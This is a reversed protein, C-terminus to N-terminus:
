CCLVLPVFSFGACSMGQPGAGYTGDAVKRFVYEGANSRTGQVRFRMEAMVFEDHEVGRFEDALAYELAAVLLRTPSRYNRRDVFVLVLQILVVVKGM